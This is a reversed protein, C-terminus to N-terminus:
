ILISTSRDCQFDNLIMVIESKERIEPNVIVKLTVSISWNQDLPIITPIWLTRCSGFFDNFDSQLILEQLYSM